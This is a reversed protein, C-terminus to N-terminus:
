TCYFLAHEDWHSKWWNVSKPWRLIIHCANENMEASRWKWEWNARTTKKKQMRLILQILIENKGILQCQVIPWFNINQRVNEMSKIVLPLLVVAWYFLYSIILFNSNRHFEFSRLNMRVKGPINICYNQVHICNSDQKEGCFTYRIATWDTRYFFSICLKKPLWILNFIMLKSRQFTVVNTVTKSRNHICAYSKYLSKKEYWSITSRDFLFDLRLYNSSSNNQLTPEIFDTRNANKGSNMILLDLTM